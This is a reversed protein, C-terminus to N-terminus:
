CSPMQHYSRQPLTTLGYFSELKPHIRPGFWDVEVSEPFANVSSSCITVAREVKTGLLVLLQMNVSKGYVCVDPFYRGYNFRDRPHLKLLVQSLEYYSFVRRLLNLYEDESLGCDQILPQSLFMIRRSSLLAIDDDDVNFVERVFVKKKESAGSWLSQLSQVIVPREGFVPSQNEETMYFRDCQPNNGFTHTAVTGFLLCEMRGSLSQSNRVQRRYEASSFQMNQTMCGPGDSLLSYHRKAIFPGAFGLDLAFIQADRLFPYRFRSYWRAMFKDKWRIISSGTGAQPTKVHVAPLHCSVDRPVAYGLFYATRNMVTVDDFILLYQLLAYLSPSICVHEVESYRVTHKGNASRLVKDSM